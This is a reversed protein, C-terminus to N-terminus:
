ESHVRLAHTCQAQESLSACVQAPPLLHQLLYMHLALMRAFTDRPLRDGLLPLSQAAARLYSVADLVASLSPNHSCSQAREQAVGPAFMRKPCPSFHGMVQQTNLMGILSLSCITPFCQLITGKTCLLTPCLLPCSLLSFKQWQLREGAVSPALPLDAPGRGPALARGPGGSAFAPAGRQRPLRDTHQRGPSRRVAAASAASCGGGSPRCSLDGPRQDPCM